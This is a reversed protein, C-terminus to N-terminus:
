GRSSRKRRPKAEPENITTWAQHLLGAFMDVFKEDDNLKHDMTSLISHVLEHCFTHQKLSDDVSGRVLIRRRHPEYLGVCDKQKWRAEPVVHVNITHGMLKYRKPIM